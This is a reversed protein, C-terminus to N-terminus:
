ASLVEGDYLATVEAQFKENVVKRKVKLSPTLEGTEQSFEIPLICFRKISEYSAVTQNFEDIQAQMRKVIEPHQSLAPLSRETISLSEAVKVANDMNLTLLAALYRRRDGVVVAQSILSYTKLSNELNQPAINKGGATILLDKKRDTIKLCGDRDFEGIDGTHMWGDVISDATASPNDHYGRMVGPGKILIEGDTAIKVSTGPLPLGVTGIKNLSPRTITSGASTETMGYGELITVGAHRFFYAIKQSLPAGGSVFLRMRGGFTEGLKARIKSFILRQALAWEIRLPIPLPREARECDTVKAEVSLGWAFLKGKAGPAATGNAVVKAYVKEYIRPVAGMLTPKVEAMNAVLKDLSEAFSMVHGVRWWCMELVKAFVHAMPLFLLQDDEVGVVDMSLLCDAEYMMNSHTLVAGKPAGTTGSTYIITLVKDPRLTATREAFLQPQKNRTARGLERLSALSMVDPLGDGDGSMVIFHDVQHLEQKVDRLKKLQAADEVFVVRAGCHKVVYACDPGPNSLYIPVTVAGAGLIGIDVEIWEIRTSSLVCVTQDPLVGISCLGLSIEEGADGLAGWSVPEFRDGRKVRAAPAHPRSRAQALLVHLMSPFQQSAQQRQLAAEERAVLHTGIESM